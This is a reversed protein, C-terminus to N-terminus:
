ISSTGSQNLNFGSIIGAFYWFFYNEHIAFHFCAFLLFYVFSIPYFIYTLRDEDDVIRGYNQIAKQFVLFLFLVFLGFGLLGTEALFQLFVNHPHSNDIDAIEDYYTSRYGAGWIPNQKFQVIASNWIRLRFVTKYSNYDNTILYDTIQKVPNKINEINIKAPKFIVLSFLLILVIVVPYLLKLKRISNPIAKIQFLYYAISMVLFIIFASKSGAYFGGLICTLIIFASISKLLLGKAAQYFGIACFVFFFFLMGIRASNDGRIIYYIDTLTSYKIISVICFGSFLIIFPKM